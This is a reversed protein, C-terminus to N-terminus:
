VSAPTAAAPASRWYGRADPSLEGLDAYSYRFTHIAAVDAPLVPKGPMVLGILVVIILKGM